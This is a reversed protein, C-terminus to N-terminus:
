MVDIDAMCPPERMGFKAWIEINEIPWMESILRHYWGVVRSVLIM